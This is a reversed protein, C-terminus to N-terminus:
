GAALTRVPRGGEAASRNACLTVDLTRLGEEYDCRIPSRDGTRVAEVFAADISPPTEVEPADLASEPTASATEGKWHVVVDRTVFDLDGKGGGATLACSTSLYGIAGSAFQLLVIQADPITFEPLDRLVRFDFRSSVEVIEGALVRMLDVQHTTMEVLQGGSQDMRRWWPVGPVGGWRNSAVMAIDRGQLMRKAQDTGKFYRLVYGACSMVGAERIAAAVEQAKELTLAVPKEVFLHIGRRAALIEADEHAFPPVCVYLADMEAEDLMARYNAFPTGGFRESAAQAREEAVDCVAAIEVGPIEQLQSLHHTAIGGVGVFGIRVTQSM